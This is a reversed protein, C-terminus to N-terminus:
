KSNVKNKRLSLISVILAVLSIGAISMSFSFSSEAKEIKMFQTENIQVISPNKYKKDYIKSWNLGDISYYIRYDNAFLFNGDSLQILCPNSANTETYLIPPPDTKIM